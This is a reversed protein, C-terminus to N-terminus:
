GRLLSGPNSRPKDSPKKSKATDTFFLYEDPKIKINPFM